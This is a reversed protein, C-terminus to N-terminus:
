IHKARILGSTAKNSSIVFLDRRVAFAIKRKNNCRYQKDTTVNFFM